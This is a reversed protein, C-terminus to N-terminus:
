GGTGPIDQAVGLKALGELKFDESLRERDIAGVQVIM